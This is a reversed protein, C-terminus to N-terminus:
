SDGVRVLKGTVGDFEATREKGTKSNKYLASYLARFRPTYIVVRETVEFSESQIWSVDTPRKQIKSRIINLDLDPSVQKKGLKKVIKKPKKESPALPLQKLSVEKGSADFTL